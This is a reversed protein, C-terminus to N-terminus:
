NTYPKSTNQRSVFLFIRPFKMNMKRSSPEKKMRGRCFYNNSQSVSSIAQANKSIFASEALPKKSYANPWDTDNFWPQYWDANRESDVCKWEDNTLLRERVSGFFSVQPFLSFVNMVAIITADHPICFGYVLRDIVYATAEKGDAFVRNQFYNMIVFVEEKDLLLFQFPTLWTDNLLM